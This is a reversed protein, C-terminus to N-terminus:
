SGLVWLRSRATEFGGVHSAPGQHPAPTVSVGRAGHGGLSQHRGVASDPTTGTRDGTGSPGGPQVFTGVPTCRPTRGLVDQRKPHIQVIHKPLMM